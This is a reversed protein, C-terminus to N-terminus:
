PSPASQLLLTMGYSLGIVMEAIEAKLEPSMEEPLEKAIDELTGNGSYEPTFVDSTWWFAEDSLEGDKDLWNSYDM